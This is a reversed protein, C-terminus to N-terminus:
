AQEQIIANSFETTFATEFNAWAANDEPAVLLEDTKQSAWVEASGGKIYSLAYAVKTSSTPFKDANARFVLKVERLFQNAKSRDGSFDTPSNVLKM